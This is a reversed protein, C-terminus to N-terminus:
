PRPYVESALVAGGVFTAVILVMALVPWYWMYWRKVAAVIIMVLSGLLALATGGWSVAFAAVLYGERCKNPSCPDTAFAFFVTFYAAVLGLAAACAYLVLALVLDWTRTRPQGYATTGYYTM